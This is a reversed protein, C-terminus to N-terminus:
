RTPGVKSFYHIFLLTLLKGLSPFPYVLPVLADVAPGVEEGPEETSSAFLEKTSYSM